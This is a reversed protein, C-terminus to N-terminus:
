NSAGLSITHHSIQNVFLSIALHLTFKCLDPYSPYKIIVSPYNNKNRKSVVNHGRMQVRENLNNLHPTVINHKMCFQYFNDRIIM